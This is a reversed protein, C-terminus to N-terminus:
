GVTTVRFHLICDLHKGTICMRAGERRKIIVTNRLILAINLLQVKLMIIITIFM